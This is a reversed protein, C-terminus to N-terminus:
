WGASPAVAFAVIVPGLPDCELDSSLPAAIKPFRRGPVYETVTVMSVGDSSGLM